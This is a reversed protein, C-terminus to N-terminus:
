KEYFITKYNQKSKSPNEAKWRKILILYIEKDFIFLINLYKDYYIKNTLKCIM